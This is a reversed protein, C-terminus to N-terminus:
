GMAPRHTAGPAGAPTMPSDPSTRTFGEHVPNSDEHMPDWAAPRGPPVVLIPCGAGRILKDAVSGLMFRRLGGTGHTACAILDYDESAAAELITSAVPTGVYVRAAASAGRVRLAEATRDLWRQAEEQRDHVYGAELLMPYPLGPAGVGLVPELVHVLVFHAGVLRGLDLAPGLVSAAAASGDLPVLISRLSEAGPVAAAGTGPRVLLVPVEAHRVVYDAVSGLWLRSIPGRGHTAMVVLDVDAERVRRCLEEGAAGKLFSVEVDALAPAIGAAAEMLYEREQHELDSELIMGPEVGSVWAAVGAHVMSVELRAHARRALGAALPLASEAFRSGDLPILIRNFM